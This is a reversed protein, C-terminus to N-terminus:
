IMGRCPDPARGEREDLREYYPLPGRLGLPLEVPPWGFWWRFTHYAPSLPLPFRDFVERWQSFLAFTERDPHIRFDWAACVRHVYDARDEIADLRTPPQQLDPYVTPDIHM